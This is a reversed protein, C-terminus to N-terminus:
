GIGRRAIRPLMTYLLIAVAAAVFPLTFFPNPVFSLALGAGAIVATWAYMILVAQRHGHGIELLRHHLHRKDAHFIDVGKRARRVVALSTDLIPIALVIAPILVPLYFIVSESLPNSPPLRGVGVVTASALLFGLTMSGSDGMFIKAPNFNHRLFGLTAGVVVISILPATQEVQALHRNLEFSYVFFTIAAISAIGAALGDLGDILNVANVIVVIWVITVVASDSSGLSLTGFPPLRFWELRVGGLFVFGAALIQGALKTTAALGRLDDIMGIAFIVFAGIVIAVLESPPWSLQFSSRFVGLASAMALGVVFAAFIAVGGLTPTPVAHVKRDDPVDVAGMRRSLKLVVPTLVYSTIASAFLVLLYADVPGM